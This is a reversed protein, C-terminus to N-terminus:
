TRMIDVEELFKTDYSGRIFDVHEFLKLHFPITTHVGEIILEDLARRMRMIAEERSEGHVIIKGIM